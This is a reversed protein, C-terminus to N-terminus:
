VKQINLKELSPKDAQMDIIHVGHDLSGLSTLM